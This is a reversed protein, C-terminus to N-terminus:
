LLVTGEYYCGVAATLAEWIEQMLVFQYPGKEKSVPGPNVALLDHSRLM